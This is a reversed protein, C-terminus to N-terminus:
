EDVGEPGHVTVDGVIEASADARNLIGVVIEAADDITPADVTLSVDYRM